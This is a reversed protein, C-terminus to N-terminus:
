SALRRTERMPQSGVALGEDFGKSLDQLVLVLEEADV